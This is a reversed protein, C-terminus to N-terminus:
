ERKYEREWSCCVRVCVAFVCVCVFVCLSVPTGDAEIRDYILAISLRKFRMCSFHRSFPAALGQYTAYYMGYVKRAMKGHPHTPTHHIPSLSLSLSLSITPPTLLAAIALRCFRPLHFISDKCFRRALYTELWMRKKQMSAPYTHMSAPYTHSIFLYFRM